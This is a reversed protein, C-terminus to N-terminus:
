TCSITNKTSAASDPDQKNNAVPRQEYLFDADDTSFDDLDVTGTSRKSTFPTVRTTDVIYDMHSVISALCSNRRQRTAKSSISQGSASFQADSEYGASSDSDDPHQNPYLGELPDMKMHSCTSRRRSARSSRSNTSMRRQRQGSSTSDRRQKNNKSGHNTNTNTNSYQNHGYGYM